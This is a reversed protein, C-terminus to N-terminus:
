PVPSIELFCGEQNNNSFSVAFHKSERGFSVYNSECVIVGDGGYPSVSNPQYENCLVAIRALIARFASRPFPVASFVNTEDVPLCTMRCTGDEWELRMAQAQFAPLLEEVLDVVPRPEGSLIDSVEKLHAHSEEM